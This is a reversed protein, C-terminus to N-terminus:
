INARVQSDENANRKKANLAIADQQTLMVSATM